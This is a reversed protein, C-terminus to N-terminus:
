TFKYLVGVSLLGKLGLNENDGIIFLSWTIWINYSVPSRLQIFLIVERTPISAIKKTISVSVFTQSQSM